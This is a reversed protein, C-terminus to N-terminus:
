QEHWINPPWVFDNTVSWARLKAVAAKAVPEYVVLDERLRWSVHGDFFLVNAGGRHISGVTAYSLQPPTESFVNIQFDWAGDVYSDAIVILDSPSKVSSAKRLWGSPRMTRGETDYPMNGLSIRNGRADNVAGGDQSPESIGYSFFMANVQGVGAVPEENVLMREGLQYGFNTHLAEAYITPGPMDPKWQCRPDQAPCYFIDQNRLYRRLMAPWCAIWSGDGTKPKMNAVPFFNCDQTYLTVAQGLGRLNSQCKVEMAQRRVKSLVPLLLAILIAILALVVLLEVLTFARHRQTSRM